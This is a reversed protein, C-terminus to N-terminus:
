ADGYIPKWPAFATAGVPLVPQLEPCHRLLVTTFSNKDIWDMGLPSYIEPRFEANLFRDSQLRRSAMLIFIRFATDSFGFGAPPAEGLLGIVTDVEDIAGYVDKLLRNTEPNPTMDEWRRIAPIRLYQRFRNYRPVGRARTRVIDVVSLDILEGDREFHQLTRPFNHLTIAGPHAIGFSYLTNTLGLEDRMVEDTGPGQIASFNKRVKEVGKEYDFFVYDDPILPHMRYVTTFEETLSYPASHHDPFTKPIGKLARADTLWIGLRTLWDGSPPGYWNTKMGIDLAETGLIAPTWEVTHIKAILASVILRATQYTQEESWDPYERRLEDCVVNHERAFLTHMASLGLWWSEKFGTLEFGRKDEPLYGKDLELKAGTGGDSRLSHASTISNGYVESGDWWHSSDNAFLLGTEDGPYPINGAIRMERDEAGCPTNKWAPYSDPIPVPVDKEGLKLRAHNAWDHVQFQIWAAALINLTRAPIFAKRDMLTRAVTVASPEQASQHHIPMNRGFTAGVAGMAPDSLDNSRGNATRYVYEERKPESPVSRATPPAERPETDILNHARLDHRLADLNLLSVLSPLRHWPVRRNLAHLSTRVLAGFIRNQIPVPEAKWRKRQRHFLSADYVEKRARNLNGLPRFDETTNWPNFGQDEIVRREAASDPASLDRQPLILTAVHISPSDAENWETAAAEIPTKEESNFRQVMLDFSIDDRAQRSAFEAELRGAGAFEGMVPAAGKSPKFHYRVAEEGWRIAGRSWYTEMALSESPRLAKRVNGLIRFMTRPGLVFFMRAIGWVRSLTGGAVAHAFLVFERADNAHPVPWNTALLDHQETESVQVRIALGRLDDEDDSKLTSAANSFRLAVPYEAGPQAFGVQLDEALDGAFRLRAGAFAAIAKAHFARNIPVLSDAAAKSKLQAAMMIEALELFEKREAEASGGKYTERWAAM